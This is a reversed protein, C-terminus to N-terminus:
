RIVDHEQVIANKDIKNGNITLSGEDIARLYHERNYKKFEELLVEVLSRNL